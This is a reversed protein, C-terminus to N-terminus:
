IQDDYESETEHYIGGKCTVEIVKLLFKRAAEEQDYYIENDEYSKFKVIAPKDPNSPIYMSAIECRLMESFDQDQLELAAHQFDGKLAIIRGSFLPPKDERQLAQPRTNNRTTFSITHWLVNLIGVSRDPDIEYYVQAPNIGNEEVAGKLYGCANKLEVLLEDFIQSTNVTSHVYDVYQKHLYTVISDLSEEVDRSTEFEIPELNLYCYEDQSLQRINLYNNLNKVGL